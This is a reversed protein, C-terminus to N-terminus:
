AGCATSTGLGMRGFRLRKVNRDWAEGDRESLNGPPALDETPVPRRNSPMKSRSLTLISRHLISINQFPDRSCQRVIERSCRFATLWRVYIEKYFKGSDVLLQQHLSNLRVSRQKLSSSSLSYMLSTAEIAENNGNRVDMVVLLENTLSSYELLFLGQSRSHLM